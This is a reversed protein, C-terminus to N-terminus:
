FERPESSDHTAATRQREIENVDMDEIPKRTIPTVRGGDEPSPGVATGRGIARLFVAQAENVVELREGREIAEILAGFMALWGETEPEFEDTETGIGLVNFISRLKAVQPTVAGTEYNVVTNRSVGAAVALEEQSLGRVKRVPAIQKAYLLRQQESAGNLHVHTM